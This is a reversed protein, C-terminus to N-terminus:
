FQKILICLAAHQVFGLFNAPYYEWRLLLRQQLQILAFFREVIWPREYRRLRRGDQIKRKARSPKQPAIMEVGQRRVEEDLPNSDNTKDGLLNDPKGEIMHYDFTSQVLTVERQPMIDFGADVCYRYIM